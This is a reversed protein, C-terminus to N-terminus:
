DSAAATEARAAELCNALVQIFARRQIPKTVFDNCGAEIAKQREREMAHATLALIPGEYDAARLRRTAEYGDMVPMEMDMLVLDFPRGEGAAALAAGLGVAGNDAVTVEAGAKKLLFAFLRQNDPGDEVLLIRGSLRLSEEGGVPGVSSLEAQPDSLTPVGDLPGAAVAAVFTTGQGHVSEVTISGGLSEALKQSIALGLGTGGYKRVTSQGAQSYPIFLRALQESTMGIGTDSVAVKLLPEPSAPEIWVKVHVRGKKTFKVANSLLNTVIQRLRLADTEVTAPIPGAYELGLSLKKKTARGRMLGVVENIARCASTKVREIQLKGAEFKTVDLIDNILDILYVGNRQITDIAALCEPVAHFAQRHQLLEDAFGLIATMPSRIEHSMSALFERVSRAAAHAAARERQLALHNDYTRLAASVRAGIALRSFPKVVFDTAGAEFADALHEDRDCATIVIVPLLARNPHARIERLMDLGDCDPLTCDLLVLDIQGAALAQRADDATRAATVLFGEEGLMDGLLAQMLPADDVVLVNKRESSEM